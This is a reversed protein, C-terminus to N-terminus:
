CSTSMERDREGPTHHPCAGQGTRSGRDSDTGEADTGEPVVVALGLGGHRSFSLVHGGHSIWPSLLHWGQCTRACQSVERTAAAVRCVANSKVMGQVTHIWPGPEREAERVLVERSEKRWRRETWAVYYCTKGM